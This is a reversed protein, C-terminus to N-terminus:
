EIYVSELTCLTFNRPVNLKVVYHMFKAYRAMSGLVVPQKVVIYQHM